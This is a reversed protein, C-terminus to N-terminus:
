AEGCLSCTSLLSVQPCIDVALSEARYDMLNVLALIIIPYRQRVGARTHHAFSPSGTADESGSM